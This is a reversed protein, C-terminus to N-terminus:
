VRASFLMHISILMQKIFKRHFKILFLFHTSLKSIFARTRECKLSLFHFDKYNGYVQVDFIQQSRGVLNEAQCQYRGRDTSTVNEISFQFNKESISIRNVRFFFINSKLFFFLSSFRESNFLMQENKMWIITPLPVAHLSCTLVLSQGKLIIIENVMPTDDVILPPESFLISEFTLQIEVFFFFFVTRLVDIQINKKIKGLKNEAVCTYLGTDNLSARIIQYYRNHGSSLRRSFFILDSILELFYEKTSKLIGPYNQNLYETQM